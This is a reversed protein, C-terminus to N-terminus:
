SKELWAKAAEAREHKPFEEILKQWIKRADPKRNLEYLTRAQWFRVDIEEPAGPRVKLSTELDALARQWEGELFMVRARWYLQDSDIKAAPRQREWDNLKALAEDRHGGEVLDELALSSARDIVPAKGADNGRVPVAEAYCRLAEETRGNLLHYDGLRIGAMTALSKDGGQRLKAVLSIVQPDKLLFVRLDLELLDAAVGLAARAPAALGGLRALAAQPNHKAPERLALTMAAAWPGPAPKAVELWADAWRAADAAPLFDKALVFGARRAPEALTKPDEKELLETVAALQKPNNITSAQMDRPILLTRQGEIGRPGNRLRLIVHLPDLTPWLRHTEPGHDVRGDPWIWEM